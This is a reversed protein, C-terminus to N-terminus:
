TNKYDIFKNTKLTRIFIGLREYVPEIKDGFDKKLCVAIEGVTRTGDCYNWVATGFEDLTIRYNPHRMRPVLYKVVLRSSFKPKLLVRYGDANVESTVNQVPILDLLNITSSDSKAM